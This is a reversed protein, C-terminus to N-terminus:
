DVDDGYARPRTMSRPRGHGPTDVTLQYDGDNDDDETTSISTQRWEDNGVSPGTALQWGTLSQEAEDRDRICM